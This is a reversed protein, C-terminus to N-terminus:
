QHCLTCAEGSDPHRLPTHCSRCNAGPVHLGNSPQAPAATHSPTGSHCAACRQAGASALPFHCSLCHRNSPAGWLASHDLPTSQSHCRECFDAQHCTLCRSLDLGTMAGHGKLRWYENHGAPKEQQHCAICKSETHCVLCTSAPKLGYRGIAEGHRKPWAADHGAPKTQKTRGDDHCTACEMGKEIPVHEWGAYRECGKGGGLFPILLLLLILSRTKLFEM